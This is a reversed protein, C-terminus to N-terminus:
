RAANAAGKGLLRRVAAEILAQMTTGDRAARVKLAAHLAPPLHIRIIKEM